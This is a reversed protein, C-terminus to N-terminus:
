DKNRKLISRPFDGSLHCFTDGMIHYFGNNAYHRENHLDFLNLELVQVHTMHAGWPAM